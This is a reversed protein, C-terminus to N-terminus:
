RNKLEKLGGQGIADLLGAQAQEYTDNIARAAVAMLRDVIVRFERQGRPTEIRQIVADAVDQPDPVNDGSFMEGFGAMWTNLAETTPGYPEMLGAMGSAQGSNDSMKTPFAGPEIIVTDIGLPNLEYRYTEFMGEAAWKSATYPAAFPLVIRAMISSILMVLGDGRARMGPLVANTVRMPGYVNVDMIWKYEDASFAEAFGMSLAGANNVVVDIGGASDEVKKVATAVSTDDTVDMEIVELARDGAAAWDRLASAAAANRQETERMSAYVEYGGEALTKATLEGFGSSCGTILVTRGTSM